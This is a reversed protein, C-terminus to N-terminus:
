FLSGMGATGCIAAGEELRSPNDSDRDQGILVTIGNNRDGICQRSVGPDVSRDICATNYVAAICCRVKGFGGRDRIRRRRQDDNNIFGNGVSRAVRDDFCM